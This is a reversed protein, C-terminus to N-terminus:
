KTSENLITIPMRQEMTYTKHQQWNTYKASKNFSNKFSEGGCYLLMPSSLQTDMHQAAQMIQHMKDNDHDNDNIQKEGNRWDNHHIANM